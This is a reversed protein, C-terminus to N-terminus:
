VVHASIVGGGVDPGIAVHGGPYVPVYGFQTLLPLSGVGDGPGIASVAVVTMEISTHVMGPPGPGIDDVVDITVSAWNAACYAGGFRGVVCNVGCEYAAITAIPGDDIFSRVAIKSITYM